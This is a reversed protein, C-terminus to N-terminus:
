RTTRRPRIPSCTPRSAARSWRRCCTPPMAACRRDLARRRDRTAATSARRAGRRPEDTAEDLYRTALRREIRQPDVEVVLAVGGNMTAALPQAGGMGGLGATVVLRGALTGGFHRRAVAALTEYTGQM